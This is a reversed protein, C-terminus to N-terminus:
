AASPASSVSARQDTPLPAIATQWEVLQNGAPTPLWRRGALASQETAAAAIMDAISPDLRPDAVAYLPTDPAPTRQLPLTVPIGSGVRVNIVLLANHRRGPLAMATTDIPGTDVTGDFTLDICRPDFHDAWSMGTWVLTQDGLHVLLQNTLAV